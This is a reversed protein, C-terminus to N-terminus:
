FALFLYFIFYGRVEQSPDVAVIHTLLGARHRHRHLSCTVEVLVGDHEAACFLAAGGGGAADSGSWALLVIHFISSLYAHTM